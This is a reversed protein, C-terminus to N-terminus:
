RLARGIEPSYVLMLAAVAISALAPIICL